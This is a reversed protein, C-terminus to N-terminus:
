PIKYHLEWFSLSGTGDQAATGESVPVFRQLDSRITVKGSGSIGSFRGMGGTLTLTGECGVMFVGSCTIQAFMLAGDQATITCRGQGLEKGDELGIQVITPCTLQGSKIFGNDTEAFIPGVLAGVFTAEHPGTQFAVGRTSWASFGKLTSEEGAAAPNCLGAAIAILALGGCWSGMASSKM